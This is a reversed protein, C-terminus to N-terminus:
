AAYSQQRSVERQLATVQRQLACVQQELHVLRTRDDQQRDFLWQLHTEIRMIVPRLVRMLVGRVGVLSRRAGRKALGLM